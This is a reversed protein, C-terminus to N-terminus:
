SAESESGVRTWALRPFCLPRQTPADTRKQTTVTVAEFDAIRSGNWRRHRRNHFTAMGGSTYHINASM